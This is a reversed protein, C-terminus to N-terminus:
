EWTVAALLDEVTPRRVEALILEALARVYDHETM